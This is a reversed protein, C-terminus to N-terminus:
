DSWAALSSNVGVMRYNPSTGQPADSDPQKDSGEVPNMVSGNRGTGSGYQTNMGLSVKGGMAPINDANFANGEGPSAVTPVFGGDPAGAGKSGVLTDDIKELTIKPPKEGTPQVESFTKSHSVSGGGVIDNSGRLVGVYFQAWLDEPGPVQDTQFGKISNNSTGLGFGTSESAPNTTTYQPKNGLM